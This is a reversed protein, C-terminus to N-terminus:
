LDWGRSQGSIQVIRETLVTTRAMKEPEIRLLPARAWRIASSHSYKFSLGLLGLAKSQNKAAFEPRAAPEACARHMLLLRGQTRRLLSLGGGHECLLSERGFSRNGDVRFRLPFPLPPSLRAFVAQAALSAASMAQRALRAM